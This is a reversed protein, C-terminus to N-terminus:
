LNKSYDTMTRKLHIKNAEQSLDRMAKGEQNEPMPLPSLYPPGSKELLIFTSPGPNGKRPESHRMM